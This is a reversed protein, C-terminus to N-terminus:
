IVARDKTLPSFEEASVLCHDVVREEMAHDGEPKNQEQVKLVFHLRTLRTQQATSYLVINDMAMCHNRSWPEHSDRAIM